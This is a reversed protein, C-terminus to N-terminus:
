FRTHEIKPHSMGTKQQLVIKLRTMQINLNQM